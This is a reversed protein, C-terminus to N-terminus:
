SQGQWLREVEKAMRQLRNFEIILVAGVEHDRGGVGVPVLVEVLCAVQALADELLSGFGKPGAWALVGTTNTVPRVSKSLRAREVNLPALSRMALGNKNM